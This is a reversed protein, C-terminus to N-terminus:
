RYRALKTARELRAAEEFHHRALDNKGTADYAMALLRHTSPRDPRVQVSRELDALAARHNSRAMFIEARTSLIDPNDPLIALSEEVYELARETSPPTSRVMAIALNNLIIPNRRRSLANAVELWVVAREYQRAALAKAALSSLIQLSHRGDVRLDTLVREAEAAGRGGAIVLRSLRDIALIASEDSATAERLLRILPEVPAGEPIRPDGPLELNAIPIQLGTLRDFEAAYALGRAALAGPSKMVAASLAEDTLSSFLESAERSRELLRLSESLRIRVELRGPNKALIAECGSVIEELVRSADGARNAEMLLEALLLRESDHEGIEPELLDVGGQASGSLLHVQALRVRPGWSEASSLHQERWHTLATKLFDPKVYAGLRRLRLLLELAAESGPDRNISEIVLGCARDRNSPSVDLMRRAMDQLVGALAVSVAADPSKALHTELLKRAQEANGSLRLADSLEVLPQVGSTRRFKEQLMEVAGRATESLVEASRGLRHQLKLLQLNLEPNVAAASILCREALQWEQESCYREALLLAAEQNSATETMARQLQQVIERHSLVFLGKAAQARKVLWLRVAASGEGDVPAMGSIMSWAESERGQSLLLEALQLAFSAERPVLSRLQRLCVEEAARDGASVSESLANLYMLRLGQSDGRDLGWASVGGFLLLTLVVPLVPLIAERDRSFFWSGAWEFTQQFLRRLRALGVVRSIFYGDGYSQEFMPSDDGIVVGGRGDAGSGRTQSSM